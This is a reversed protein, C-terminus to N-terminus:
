PWSSVQVSEITQDRRRRQVDLIDGMQISTVGYSQANARSWVVLSVGTPFVTEIATELSALYAKVGGLVSTVDASAVRLTAATLGIGTAPLFLRGRGRAGPQATRLSTVIATQFSHASGGSGLVASGRQAEFQAELLGENTRAELRVGTITTSSSMAARLTTPVSAANIATAITILQAQTVDVGGFDGGLSFIPNISWVEGSPLAGLTSVRLLDAM